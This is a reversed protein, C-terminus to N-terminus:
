DLNVVIAEDAFELRDAVAIAVPSSLAGYCLMTGETAADFLAFSAVTGWGTGSCPGFTVVGDNTAAGTAAEHFTVAQRVYGYTADTLETFSVDTAPDTISLGMWVGTPMTWAETGLMHDLILLEAANSIGTGTAM